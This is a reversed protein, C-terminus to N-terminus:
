NAGPTDLQEWANTVKDAADADNAREPLSEAVLRGGPDQFWIVSLDARVINAGITHSYDMRTRLSDSIMAPTPRRTQAVSLYRTGLSFGRYQFNSVIEGNSQGPDAWLRSYRDLPHEGYHSPCYFVGPTPLYDDAYLHGLGDWSIPTVARRVVSALHMADSQISSAYVSPPLLDRHDDAYLFMGIGLQRINNRCIVQRTTERVGALSPLLIGILVAIVSITVLVDILTFGGPRSSSRYGRVHTRLCAIQSTAARFRRM